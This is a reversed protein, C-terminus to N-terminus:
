TLSLLSIKLLWNNLQVNILIGYGIIPYATLIIYDSLFLMVEKNFKHCYLQIV